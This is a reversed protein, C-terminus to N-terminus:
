GSYIESERYLPLHDPFKSVLVHALLGRGALGREIPRTCAGRKLSASVTGVHSSRGCM